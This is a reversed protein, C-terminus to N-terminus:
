TLVENDGDEKPTVKIRKFIFSSGNDTVAYGTLEWGEEGLENLLTDINANKFRTEISITSSSSTWGEFDPLWYVNLYEWKVM